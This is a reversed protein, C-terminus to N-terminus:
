EGDEVEEWDEPKEFQGLEMLEQFLATASVKTVNKTNSNRWKALKEATVDSAQVVALKSYNGCTGDHNDQLIYFHRTSAMTHRETEKNEQHSHPEKKRTVYLKRDADTEDGGTLANTLRDIAAAEM